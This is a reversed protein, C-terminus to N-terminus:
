GCVLLMTICLSCNCALDLSKQSVLAKGRECNSIMQEGKDLGSVAMVQKDLHKVIVEITIVVSQLLRRKM